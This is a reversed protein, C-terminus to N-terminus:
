AIKLDVAAASFFSMRDAVDRTPKRIRRRALPTGIEMAGLVQEEDRVGLRSRAEALDTFVEARWNAAYGRNHLLLQMTCAVSNVATLQERESSATDPSYVLVALLPIGLAAAAGSQQRNRLASGLCDALGHQDSAQVLIWRWSTREGLDSVTAAGRLLYAFEGAGPAPQVLAQESEQTLIATMVDM